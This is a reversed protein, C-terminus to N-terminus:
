EPTADRESFGAGGQASASWTASFLGQYLSRLGDSQWPVDYINPLGPETDVAAQEAGQPTPEPVNGSVANSAKEQAAALDEAAAAAADENGAAVAHEMAAHADRAEAVASEVDASRQRAVAIAEVDGSSAAAALAASAQSSSVSVDALAGSAAAMDVAYVQISAALAVVCAFLGRSYHRKKM